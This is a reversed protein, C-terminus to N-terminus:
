LLKAGCKFILKQKNPIALKLKIYEETLRNQGSWDWSFM